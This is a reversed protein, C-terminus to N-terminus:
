DIDIGYVGERTHNLGLGDAFHDVLALNTGDDPYPERLQERRALLAHGDVFACPMLNIRRGQLRPETWLRTGTVSIKRDAFRVESTKTARLQSFDEVRLPYTYYNPDAIFVCPYWYSLTSTGTAPERFVDSYPAENYYDDALAISWRSAAGFYNCTEAIGAASSRVVSVSGPVTFAPHTDRFDLTYATMTTAHTRLNALSKTLQASVRARGIAPLALSVLVGVLLIVLLTEILTFARQRTNPETAMVHGRKYLATGGRLWLCGAVFLAVNKGLVAPASNALAEHALAFGLCGCAPTGGTALEFVYATSFVVLMALMGRMCARSFAGVLWCGGFILELSPVLFTVAARLDDNALLSWSRSQSEFQPLSVFKLLAAIVFVISVILGSCFSTRRMQMESKDTVPMSKIALEYDNPHV